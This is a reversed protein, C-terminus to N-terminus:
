LNVIMIQLPLLDASLPKDSFYKIFLDVLSIWITKLREVHEKRVVAHNKDGAHALINGSPDIFLNGWMIINGTKQPLLSPHEYENRVDETFADFLHKLRNRVLKYDESFNVPTADMSRHIENMLAKFKEFVKKLKDWTLTYYYIDLSLQM